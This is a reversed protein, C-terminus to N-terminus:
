TCSCGRDLSGGVVERAWRNLADLQTSCIKIYSRETYAGPKGRGSMWTCTARHLKLYSPRPNREANIVYGGPHESIWSLYGADDGRFIVVDECEETSRDPRSPLQATAPPSAKVQQVSPQVHRFYMWWVMDFLEIRTREPEIAHLEPWVSANEPRTVDFAIWDLAEKIRPMAKVTDERARKEPWLPYMYAGFIALNDLVPILAPRKKHLTKTAVSAGIGPWSTMAGILEAIVHREGDTTDGLAKGPLTSLDLTTRNRFVGMAQRAEVRSNILMTVALDEVFVRDVSTIPEHELYLQGFDREKERWDRLLGEVNGVSRDIKGAGYVLEM